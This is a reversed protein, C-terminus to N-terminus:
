KFGSEKIRKTLARIMYPHNEDPDPKVQSFDGRELALMDNLANDYDVTLSSVVKEENGYPLSRLLLGIDEKELKGGSYQMFHNITLTRGLKTEADENQAEVIIQTNL